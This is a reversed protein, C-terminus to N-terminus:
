ADLQRVRDRLPCEERGIRLSAEILGVVKEPMPTYGM